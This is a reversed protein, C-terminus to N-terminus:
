SFDAGARALHISVSKGSPRVKKEKGVKQWLFIRVTLKSSRSLLSIFLLVLTAVNNGFSADQRRKIVATIISTDSSQIVSFFLYKGAGSYIFARRLGM